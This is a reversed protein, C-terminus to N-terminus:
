CRPEGAGAPVEVDTAVMQHIMDKFSGAASLRATFRGRTGTGRSNLKILDRWHSERM